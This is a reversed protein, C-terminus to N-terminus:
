IMVVWFQVFGASFLLRPNDPTFSTMKNKKDGKTIKWKQHVQRPTRQRGASTAPAWQILDSLQLNFKSGIIEKSVKGLGSV